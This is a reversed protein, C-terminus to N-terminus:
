KRVLNKGRDTLTASLIPREEESRKLAFQQAVRLLSSTPEHM